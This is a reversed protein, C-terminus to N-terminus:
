LNLTAQEKFGSRLNSIHKLRDDQEGTQEITKKQQTQKNREHNPESANKHNQM